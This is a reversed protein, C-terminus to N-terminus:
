EGVLRRHGDCVEDAQRGALLGPLVGLGAGHLLALREVIAQGKVAHDVAKHNLPPVRESHSAAARAIPEAVLDVVAERHLGTREGHRVRPRAGIAALEEDGFTRGVPEVVLVRDEAQALLSVQDLLDLVHGFAGVILGLRRDRDVLDGERLALTSSLAPWAARAWPITRSGAYSSARPAGR